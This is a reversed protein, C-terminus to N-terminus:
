AFLLVAHIQTTASAKLTVALQLRGAARMPLLGFALAVIASIAIAFLLVQRDPEVTFELGSWRILAAAATQAFFWALACGAAVLLISEAILSGFLAGAAAGLARRLAFDRERAANRLLLLM